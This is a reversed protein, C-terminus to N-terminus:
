PKGWASWWGPISWKGRGPDNGRRILLVRDGEFVIAGVGMFPRHPYGRDDM